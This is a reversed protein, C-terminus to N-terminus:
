SKSASGAGGASRRSGIRSSAGDRPVFRNGTTARVGRHATGSSAKIWVERALIPDDEEEHPTPKFNTKTLIMDDPVLAVLRQLEDNRRMGELLLGMIDRPVIDSEMKEPPYPVFAFAGAIPRELTQYLAEDGRMHGRRRM